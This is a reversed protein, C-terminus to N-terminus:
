GHTDKSRLLTVLAEMHRASPMSASDQAAWFNGKVGMTEYCPKDMNFRFRWEIDPYLRNLEALYEAITRDDTYGGSIGEMETIERGNLYLPLGNSLSLGFLRKDM